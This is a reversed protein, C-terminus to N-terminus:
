WRKSTQDPGTGRAPAYRPYDPVDIFSASDKQTWGDKKKPLSNKLKIYQCDFVVFVQWHPIHPSAKGSAHQVTSQLTILDFKLANLLNIQSAPHYKCFCLAPRQVSFYVIVTHYLVFRLYSLIVSFLCAPVLVTSFSHPKERQSEWDRISRVQTVELYATGLFTSLGRRHGLWKLLTMEVKVHLYLFM